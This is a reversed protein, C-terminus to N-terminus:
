KMFKYKRALEEFDKGELIKWLLERSIADLFELGEHSHGCEEHLADQPFFKKLDDTQYASVIKELISLWKQRLEDVDKKMGELIPDLSDIFEEDFESLGWPVNEIFV